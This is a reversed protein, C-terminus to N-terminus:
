NLVPRVECLRWERGIHIYVHREPSVEGVFSGLYPAYIVEVVPPAYPICDALLPLSCPKSAEVMRLEGSDLDRILVPRRKNKFPRHTTM